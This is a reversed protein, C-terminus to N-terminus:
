SDSGGNQRKEFEVFWPMQLNQDIQSIKPMVNLKCVTLIQIDIRCAAHLSKHAATRTSKVRLRMLLSSIDIM